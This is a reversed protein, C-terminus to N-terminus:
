YILWDENSKTITGKVLDLTYTDYNKDRILKCALSELTEKESPTLKYGMNSCYTSFGLLDSGDNIGDGYLHVDVDDYHKAVGYKTNKSLEIIKIRKDM